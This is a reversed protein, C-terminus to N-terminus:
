ASEKLKARRIRQNMVFGYVHSGVPERRKEFNPYVGFKEKYNHYAWGDKYNREFAYQLLQWYFSKKFEGSYKEKKESKGNTIEQMEGAIEEIKSRRTRVFGCCPCIDAKGAWIMRCQPCRSDKKEKESPEKKPTKDKGNDLTKVGHTYLEDWDDRFRLWNGSNDQIVCFTKGHYSRAGRGVMQVHQSFSKRLPKAIIIHEVDPQDFGRTLIDTSIVGHIETDARSFDRLVESKYEEDDKYSIQVFNLGHEAFRKVLEAGHAVGASFCITKKYEGGWVQQSIKIYDGVVDGVIKLGENELEDKKWEGAVIKVNKTNIETAAFVRFPVLMKQDVLDGMTVVNVVSSFYDKLRPHFPTATLGIIKLDPNREAHELLKKRMCAHIEDIILLDCQPFSSKAELTQLSCVQAKEYPRYMPHNAMEVGHSIGADFLHRSFQSVLVRRDCAFVVRCGKDIASKILHIAIVSKGAGTSAALVQRKHNNRFGDRLGEISEVQYGRLEKIAM